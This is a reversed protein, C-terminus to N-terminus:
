YNIRSSEYSIGREEPFLFLTVEGHTYHSHCKYNSSDLRILVLYNYAFANIAQM